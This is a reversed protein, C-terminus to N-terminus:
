GRRDKRDDRRGSPVRGGTSVLIDAESFIWFQGLFHLMLILAYSLVVIAIPFIAWHANRKLLVQSLGFSIITAIIMGATILLSPSLWITTGFPAMVLLAVGFATLAPIVTDRSSVGDHLDLATQVLVYIFVVGLYIAAGAWTYALAAMAIGAAGAYIYRKEHSSYALVLFMIMGSFFLGELVHHDTASFMSKLLYYPALATMFASLLAVKGDFLERTLRYIVLITISGLIVPMVAGVMEIGHQSHIGLMLSAGAIM